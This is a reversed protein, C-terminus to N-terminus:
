LMSDGSIMDTNPWSWGMTNLLSFRARFLRPVPSKLASKSNPSRSPTYLPSQAISSTIACSFFLTLISKIVCSVSQHMNSMSSRWRKKQKKWFAGVVRSSFISFTRFFRLISTLCHQTLDGKYLFCSWILLCAFLLIFKLHMNQQLAEKCFVITDNNMLDDFINM